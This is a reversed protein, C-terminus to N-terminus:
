ASSTWTHSAQLQILTFRTSSELSGRQEEGGGDSLWQVLPSLNCRSCNSSVSEHFKKGETQIYDPASDRARQLIHLLDKHAAVNEEPDLVSISETRNWSRRYPFSLHDPVYASTPMQPHHPQPMINSPLLSPPTSPYAHWIHQQTNAPAVTHQALQRRTRM